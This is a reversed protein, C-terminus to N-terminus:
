NKTYTYTVTQADATFTGTANTPLKTTDLTYGTITLKYTATSADYAEGVNGSITQSAHAEAGDQDIYKVTVDGGKKPCEPCGPCGWNDCSPKPGLPAPTAVTLEVFTSADATVGFEKTGDSTKFYAANFAARLRKADAPTTFEQKEGNAHLTAKTYETM